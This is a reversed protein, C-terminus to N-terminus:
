PLGEMDLLFGTLFFVEADDGGPGPRLSEPAKTPGHGRVELQIAMGGCAPCEPMFVRVDIPFRAGCSQCRYNM